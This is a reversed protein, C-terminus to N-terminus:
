SLNLIFKPPHFIESTSLFLYLFGYYSSTAPRDAPWAKLDIAISQLNFYNIEPIENIAKPAQEKEESKKLQETLYCQGNCVSM